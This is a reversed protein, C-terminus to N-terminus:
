VEDPLGKVIELGAALEEKLFKWMQDEIRTDVFVYLDDYRGFIPINKLNRLAIDPHTNALWKLCVRFFRREGQGGRVDRLYFLCKLAYAEDEELANKFLLIVDEDSRTRYAGGMAFMDLLKSNTSKHTIGGNETLTYNTANTLGNIFKNM